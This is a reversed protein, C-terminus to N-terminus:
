LRGAARPPRHGPSGLGRRESHAGPGRGPRARHPYCGLLPAHPLRLREGPRKYPRVPERGAGGRPRGNGAGGAPHADPLPAHPETGGGGHPRRLRRRPRPPPGHVRGPCRKWSGGPRPVRLPDGGTRDQAGDHPRPNDGQPGRGARLPRGQSGARRLPPGRGGEGGRLLIERGRGREDRLGLHREPEGRDGPDRRGDRDPGRHDLHGADGGRRDGRALAQGTGRARAARVAGHEGLAAGQQLARPLFRKRHRAPGSRVDWRPGGRGGRRAHLGARTGLALGGGAARHRARLDQGREREAALGAASPRRRLAGRLYRLCRPLPGRRRPTGALAQAKRARDPRGRARRPRARDPRDGAAE